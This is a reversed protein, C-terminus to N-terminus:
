MQHTVDVVPVHHSRANATHIPKHSFLHCFYMFSKNFLIHTLCVPMHGFSPCHAKVDQCNFPIPVYCYNWYLYNSFYHLIHVYSMLTRNQSTTETGCMTCM